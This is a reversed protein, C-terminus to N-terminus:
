GRAAPASPLYTIATRWDVSFEPHRLYFRIASGSYFMVILLALIGERNAVLAGIASSGGRAIGCGSHLSGSIAAGVLAAGTGRSRHRGNIM